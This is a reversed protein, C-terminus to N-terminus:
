IPSLGIAVHVRIRTVVQIGLSYVGKLLFHCFPQLRPDSRHSCTSLMHVGIQPGLGVGIQLSRSLHAFTQYSSAHLLYVGTQHNHRLLCYYRPNNSLLLCVDTWLDNTRLPCVIIQHNHQLSNYHRPNDSISPCM